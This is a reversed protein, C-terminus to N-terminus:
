RPYSLRLWSRGARVIWCRMIGLPILTRSIWSLRCFINRYRLSHHDWPQLTVALSCRVSSRLSQCLLPVCASTRLVVACHWILSLAATLLSQTTLCWVGATKGSRTLWHVLVIRHLHDLEEARKVGCWHQRKRRRQKRRQLCIALVLPLVLCVWLLEVNKFQVITICLFCSTSYILHELQRWSAEKSTFCPVSSPQVGGGLWQPFVPLAQDGWESPVM